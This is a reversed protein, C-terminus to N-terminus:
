DQLIILSAFVLLTMAVMTTVLGYIPLLFLSATLAGLAAGALDLAYLRPGGQAMRISDAPMRPEDESMGSTSLTKVALAFHMGGLIGGVLALASFIVPLSPM